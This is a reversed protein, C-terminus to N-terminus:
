PEPSAQMMVSQISGALIQPLKHEPYLSLMKKIANAPSESAKVAMKFNTIYTEASELLAPGGAVGHGPYVTKISGFSRILELQELWNDLRGEALWMHVGNGALDGTFLLQQEPVYLVMNEVSEGARFIRYQIRVGNLTFENQQLAVTPAFENGASLKQSSTRVWQAISSDIEAATIPGANIEVNTFRAGLSELGYYHDPHPHTIFIKSLQHHRSSVLHAVRAGEIASFQADILIAEDGASVLYSNSLFGDANAAYRYVSVHNSSQAATTGVFGAVIAFLIIAQHFVRSATLSTTCRHTRFSVAEFGM